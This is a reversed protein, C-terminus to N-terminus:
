VPQRGDKAAGYHTQSRTKASHAIESAAPPYGAGSLTPTNTPVKGGPAKQATTSPAQNYHTWHFARQDNGVDVQLTPPGFLLAIYAVPRGAYPDPPPPTEPFLRSCATLSLGIVVLIAKNLMM